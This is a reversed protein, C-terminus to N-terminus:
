NRQTSEETASLRNVLVTLVRELMNFRESIENPTAENCDQVLADVLLVVAQNEVGEDYLMDSTIGNFEGPLDAVSLRSANSM